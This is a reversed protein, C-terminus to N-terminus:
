KGEKEKKEDIDEQKTERDRICKLRILVSGEEVRKKTIGCM